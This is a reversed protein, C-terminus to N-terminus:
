DASEDGKILEIIISDVIEAKEAGPTPLPPQEAEPAPTVDPDFYEESM